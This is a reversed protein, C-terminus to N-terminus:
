QEYITHSEDLYDDRNSKIKNANTAFAVRVPFMNIIDRTKSPNQRANLKYNNTEEYVKQNKNWSNM